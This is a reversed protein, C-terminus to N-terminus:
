PLLRILIPVLILSVVSLFAIAFGGVVVPDMVKEEEDFDVLGHEKDIGKYMVKEKSEMVERRNVLIPLRNLHIYRWGTFLPVAIKKRLDGNYSQVPIQERLPELRPEAQM